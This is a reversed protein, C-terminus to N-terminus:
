NQINSPKLHQRLSKVSDQFRGRVHAKMSHPVDTLPKLDDDTLFEYAGTPGAWLTVVGSPNKSVILLYRKDMQFRPFRSEDMVIEVGDVTVNGGYKVVLLEDAELPLLDEPPSVSPLNPLPARESVTELIKFKYWTVIAQDRQTDIKTEIPQAIVFSYNALVFEPTDAEGVYEVTPGGLVVRTKKDTKAKRAIWKLSGRDPSRDFDEAHQTPASLSKYIGVGGVACIATILALIVLKRMPDETLKELLICVGFEL